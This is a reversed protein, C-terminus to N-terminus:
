GRGTTQGQSHILIKRVLADVDYGRAAIQRALRLDREVTGRGIVLESAIRRLSWGQGRYSVTGLPPTPRRM